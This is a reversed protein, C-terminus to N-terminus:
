KRLKKLEVYEKKLHVFAEYFMPSLGKADFLNGYLKGLSYHVLALGRVFELADRESYAQSVIEDFDMLESQVSKLYAPAGYINNSICKVSTVNPRNDVLPIADVGFIEKYDKIRTSVDKYLIYAELAYSNLKKIIELVDGDNLTHQIEGQLKAALRRDNKARDEFKSLGNTLDDLSSMGM